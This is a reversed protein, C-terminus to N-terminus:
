PEEYAIQIPGDTFFYKDGIPKAISYGIELLSLLIALATYFEAVFASKNSLLNKKFRPLLNRYAACTNALALIEKIRDAHPSSEIQCGYVDHAFDNRVKRFLHLARALDPAILRLRHALNIKASFTSLPTDGDFLEDGKGTNPLLVKSILQYLLVDMRAAALIVAARESENAYQQLIENVSKVVSALLEDTTNKSTSKESM